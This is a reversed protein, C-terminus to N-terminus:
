FFRTEVNQEKRPEWFRASGFLEGIDVGMRVADAADGKDPGDWQIIAPPNGQAYLLRAIAEMHALGPADCDPWLYVFRTFLPRLTTPEPAASAGCVTALTVIGNARAVERVADAPTEGEVLLVAQADETLHELGYLLKRPNVGKPEWWMRKGTTTNQRWHRAEGFTSVIYPAGLPQSATQHADQRPQFFAAWEAGVAQAVAEATCGAFCHILVKGDHESVSLSPNHDEHAPCQVLWGDAKPRTRKSRNLLQITAPLTPRNM